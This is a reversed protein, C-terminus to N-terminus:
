NHIEKLEAVFNSPYVGIKSKFAKSFPESNKFGVENAMALISYNKFGRENRLKYLVLDIRIDNLYTRFSKKHYFNIIRGLYNANTGFNKALSTATINSNIFQKKREFIELSNLIDKVVEEAIGIDKKEKPYYEDNENVIKSGIANKVKADFKKQYYLQLKDYELNKKKIIRRRRLLEFFVISFLILGVTSWTNFKRNSKILMSTLEKKEKLLKPKLLENTFGESIYTYDNHVISDFRLLQEIYYLQKSKSNQNKFYAILTEYGPRSPPYLDGLINSISDMRILDAIGGDVMGISLKSMGQIYYCTAVSKLDNFIFFGGLALETSDIASKYERRDFHVEASNLRTMNIYKDAGKLNAYKQVEKNLAEASDLNQNLRFSNAYLTISHLFSIGTEEDISGLDKGKIKERMYDVSLRFDNLAEDHKGIRQRLLGLSVISIDELEKDKESKALKFANIHNTLAEEFYSKKFLYNAKGYYGHWLFYNQNTYISYKILSDNFHYHSDWEELTILYYGRTLNLTDKENRAKEIYALGYLDHLVSDKINKYFKYFLQEYSQTKLSDQILASSSFAKFGYSNSLIFYLIFSIYYKLYNGM